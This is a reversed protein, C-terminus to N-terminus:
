AFLPPFPRCYSSLGLLLQSSSAFWLVSSSAPPFPSNIRSLTLSSSLASCCSSSSDNVQPVSAVSPQTQATELPTKPRVGTRAASSHEGSLLSMLLRCLCVKPLSPQQLSALLSPLLSVEGMPVLPLYVPAGSFRASSPIPLGAQLTPLPAM